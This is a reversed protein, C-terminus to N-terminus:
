NAVIEIGNVMPLNAAGTTFQINIAGNTVSVNFPKDLVIFEGGAQAFIDFNSLVATGNIATNFMRRAAATQSVEAFKLTVKYTGNPVPFNYSFGGGYRCTQYLAQSTTGAIPTSIIWTAGNVYDLDAAWTQGLSDVFAAGGANVRIPSFSSTPPPPTVATGAGVIEIGNVMPLNASGTSFLIAIQGNTVSVTFSKNLVIFEGGAQAFIDFNPLVTTGNIGVNFIRRGAATQSVEAFKLNVTYTGNPVAFQYSFGGYRCTQYVPQSTTGTITNAVAWTAGGSYSRDASWTQGLADVYATGGANIRIPSFSTTPPTTGGTSSDGYAGANLTTGTDTRTTSSLPQVYEFAPVGSHSVGSGDLYVPSALGIAHAQSASTLHYDTASMFGPATGLVNATFGTPVSATSPMWNNTGSIATAYLPNVITDSGYFINNSAVIASNSASSRLFGISSTGAILTNNILYLTGLHTGGVDQGFNIFKINNITRNPTSVVLNGIMTMNSNAITTDPADLGEVESEAGFAVYNYFLQTYHARSKFNEGSVSDHIYCYRFTITTGATLYVNHSQGDLDGTGNYAIESNQVIMNDVNASSSMIGMDCYTIKVNTITVANNLVRIGAGNNGNRANKFELNSIQYYAGDIQWAGRPGGNGSTDLGNADIIPRGTTCVGQLVIPAAATGSVTWDKVENYTGCHINVVDGAKLVPVSAITLYPQGTGVEYTSALLPTVSGSVFLGCLVALSISLNNIILSKPKRESM